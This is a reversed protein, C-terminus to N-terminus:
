AAVRESKWGADRLARDLTDAGAAKSEVTVERHELSVQVVANPDVERLTATVGKACGGCAMNPIKFRLM